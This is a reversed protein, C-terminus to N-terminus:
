AADPVIACEASVGHRELIAGVTGNRACAAIFGSLHGAANPRGMPMGMAQRIEMFPPELVRAGPRSAAMAEVAQRIGALGDVEGGDLARLAEDLDPYIALRDAGPKRQLHLTYASGRVAGIKLGREVAEGADAVDTRASVLYCGEIRIYPHTFFITRAREPDVALFCVDWLDDTASGSVDAAREFEVFVPDLDLEQALTRALDVSIGQPKGAADRSVLVANGHNLAVRLKGTPAYERRVQDSVTM